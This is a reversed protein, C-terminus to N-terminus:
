NGGDSSSSSAAAASAMVAITSAQQAQIITDITTYMGTELLSANDIRESVLLNAAMLLNMDKHWRFHSQTNLSEAGRMVAGVEKSGDELLALLGVTPYHITKPRRGAMTFADYVAICQEILRDADGHEDIALIHSLFQLDNGKYFGNKNLERYFYEVRELIDEVEGKRGSLLAALPYDTSSTLFFHHRRMGKYVEMMRPINLQDMDQCQNMLVGAAIYTPGGRSFQNEVLQEYVSLLEQFKEESDHYRVDLMAAISFRPESKLTNFFGVSGKIYDSIKMFRNLNFPKDSIAYISAILMIMRKDSVKWSLAPKLESYIDRYLELKKEIM